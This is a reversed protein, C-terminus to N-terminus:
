DGKAEFEAIMLDMWAHRHAQIHDRDEDTLVHKRSIVGKSELWGELTDHRGLREEVINRVRVYDDNTIFRKCAALSIAHCIFRAKYMGMSPNMFRKRLLPKALKLVESTKM